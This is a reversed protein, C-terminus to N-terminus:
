ILRPWRPASTCSAPPSPPPSFSSGTPTGEAQRSHEDANCAGYSPCRRASRRGDQRADTHQRRVDHLHARSTRRRRDAALQRPQSRARAGRRVHWRAAIRDVTQHLRPAAGPQRHARRSRQVRHPEVLQHRARSRRRMYDCSSHLRNGDSDTYAVYTLAMETTLQLRASAHSIRARIPIPTPAVPRPGASGRAGAARTTLPTGVDIMYWSTGLGLILVAGIFAAWDGLVGIVISIRKQLRHLGVHVPTLASHSLVLRHEM